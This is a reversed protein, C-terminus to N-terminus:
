KLLFNYFNTIKRTQSVVQLTQKLSLCVTTCKWLLDTIWGYMWYEYLLNWYKQNLRSFFYYKFYTNLENCIIKTFKDEYMKIIQPHIFCFIDYWYILRNFVGSIFWLWGLTLVNYCCKLVILSFKLSNKYEFLIWHTM